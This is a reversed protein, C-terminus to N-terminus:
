RRGCTAAARCSRCPNRATAEACPARSRREIAAALRVIGGQRYQEALGRLEVDVADETRLSLLQSTNTAIYAILSAAFITFVALYIVSLRFATTRFLRFRAPNAM